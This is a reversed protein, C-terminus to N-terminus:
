RYPPVPTVSARQVGTLVAVIAGALLLEVEAALDGAVLLVVVAVVKVVEVLVVPEKM